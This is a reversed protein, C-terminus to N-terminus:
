LAIVEGEYAFSCGPCIERIGAAAADLEADTRLPDHHVIRARVAGCDRAFRAATSWATHGFGSRSPWEEDSYQGDCLLLGCGRAFGLAKPWLDDTLTCDSLVAVSKGGGELRLLSVGGPHSGEMSRVRVGDLDLVEPLDFFRIKGPLLEPGVPWLPPSLFRRIQAEVDLGGRRAGYIDLRAEPDMACACLPLGILHDAHPHTLILPLSPPLGDRSLGLLGSGADILVATGALRVLFCTTAGGHRAFAPGSVPVSGRAGLITVADRM